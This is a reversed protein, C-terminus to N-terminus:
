QLIQTHSLNRANGKLYDSLLYNNVGSSIAGTLVNANNIYGSARANGANLYNQGVNGGVVNGMQAGQVASTQGLGSLSQLPTLSQYYRRLFNDFDNTAYDQGYRTLEKAEAGSLLNGRASAGRERTKVGESLRFDYGPSKTFEGPGKQIKDLLSGERFTSSPQTENKRQNYDTVYQQYAGYNNDVVQTPQIGMDFQDRSLISSPQQVSDTINNAQKWSAYDLMPEMNPNKLETGYGLAWKGAERWPAMDARGQYFMELEADTAKNAGKVQASAAKDAAQSGIFGSLITGGVSAAIGM